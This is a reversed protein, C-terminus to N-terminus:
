HPRARPGPRRGGGGSGDRRRVDRLRRRGDGPRLPPRGRAGAGWPGLGSRWEGLPPQKDMHGYILIPDGSGGNDILLLPTRGPLTVIEVTLAPEKDKVWTALLEAAAAIAGREEWDPDFAPSLCPIRTYDSLAPLIREEWAADIDIAPATM